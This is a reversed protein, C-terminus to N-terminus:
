ERVKCRAAVPLIRLDYNSRNESTQVVPYAPLLFRVPAPAIIAKSPPPGPEAPLGQVQPHLSPSVPVGQNPFFSRVPQRSGFELEKPNGLSDFWGALLQFDLLPAPLIVWCFSTQNISDPPGEFRGGAGQVDIENYALSLRGRCPGPPWRGSPETFPQSRNSPHIACV